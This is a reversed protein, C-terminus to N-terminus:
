FEEFSGPPSFQMRLPSSADSDDVDSKTPTALLQTAIMTVESNGTIAVEDSRARGQRSQPYMMIRVTRFTQLVSAHLTRLVGVLDRISLKAEVQIASAIADLRTLLPSASRYM